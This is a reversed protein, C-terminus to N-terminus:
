RRRAFLYYLEAAGGLLKIVVTVAFLLLSLAVADPESVGYGPLLLLLSGERVGLGAFSVPLMVLLVVVSRIWGIHVISLQIDLARAFCFFAFMGGLQVVVSLAAVTGTLGRSAQYGQAMTTVLRECTEQAAPPLRGLLGTCRAGIRRSLSPHSVLAHTALSAALVAALVLGGMWSVGSPKGIAWFGLGLGALVATDILRNFAVSALVEGWKREAHAFRYLRMVGGALSSPLFLGYFKAAMNVAFIEWATMTMGQRALLLKLKIAEPIGLLLGCALGLLVFGPSAGAIAASVEGLPIQRLVAYLLAVTILFRLAWVYPNKKKGSPM